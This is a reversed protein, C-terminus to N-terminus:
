PNFLAQICILEFRERGRSKDTTGSVRRRERERENWMSKLDKKEAMVEMYINEGETWREKMELCRM